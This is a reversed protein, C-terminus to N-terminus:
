EKERKDVIDMDKQIYFMDRELMDHTNKEHLYFKNPMLVKYFCFGRIFSSVLRHM